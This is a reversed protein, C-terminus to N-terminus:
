PLIMTPLILVIVKQILTVGVKCYSIIAGEPEYKLM